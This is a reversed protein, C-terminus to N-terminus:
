TNVLSMNGFYEPHFLKFEHGVNGLCNCWYLMLYHMKLEIQFKVQTQLGLNELKWSCGTCCAVDKLCLGEMSVGNPYM